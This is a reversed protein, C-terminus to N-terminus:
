SSRGHQAYRLGSWRCKENECRYRHAHPLVTKSLVRDYWHRHIRHFQGGCRPCAAARWWASRLFRVRLRYALFLLGALILIVGAWFIPSFRALIAKVESLITNLDLILLVGFFVVALAIIELQHGKSPPM